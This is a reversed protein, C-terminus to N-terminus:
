LHLKYNPHQEGDLKVNLVILDFVFFSRVCFSHLFVLNQVKGTPQLKRHRCWFIKKHSADLPCFVNRVKESPAFIWFFQLFHSIKAMKEESQPASGGVPPPCIGGHGGGQHQWQYSGLKLKLLVLGIFKSKYWSFRAVSVISGQQCWWWFPLHKLCLIKHSYHPFNKLKIHLFSLLYMTTPFPTIKSPFQLILQLIM